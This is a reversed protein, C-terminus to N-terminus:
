QLNKTKGIPSATESVVKGVDEDDKEWDIPKKSLTSVNRNKVM